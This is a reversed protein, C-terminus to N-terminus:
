KRALLVVENGDKFMFDVSPFGAMKLMAIQNDVTCPTDFHCFEDDPINQERRLRANEAYFEDEQSQDTVMYDSEIYIGQPLLAKYIKRYLGVKANHSFHHLTCYSIATDFVAERLDIDFYSGCILQLNKGPNKQKLRDLMTPTIDIGVVSVHPVRQFIWDLELGTGCGLDLINRSNLPVLEAFKRYGEDGYELMHAEYGDLRATFFDSMKELKPHNPKNTHNDM